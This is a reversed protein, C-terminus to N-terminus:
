TFRAVFLMGNLDAHLSATSNLFSQAHESAFSKVISISQKVNSPDINSLWGSPTICFATDQTSETTGCVVDCYDTNPKEILYPAKVKVSCLPTNPTTFPFFQVSTKGTNGEGITVFFSGNKSLAIKKIRTAPTKNSVLKNLKSSKNQFQLQWVNVEGSTAVVVQYVGHAIAFCVHDISGQYEQTCM